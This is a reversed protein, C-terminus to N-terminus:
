RRRTGPGVELWIVGKPSQQGVQGRQAVLQQAQNEGRKHGIHKLDETEWTQLGERPEKMFYLGGAQM